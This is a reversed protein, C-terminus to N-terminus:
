RILTNWHKAMNEWTQKKAFEICNQRKENLINEDITQINKIITLVEDKFINKLKNKENINQETSLLNHYKYLMFGRKDTVTESIAWLNSCIPIVGGAMMELATICYTETFTTPYLWYESKMIEDSLKNQDVRGHYFVNKYENNLLKTGINVINPFNKVYNNTFDSFVHLEADPLISLIDPFIELLYELSRTPCSSYIFRNKQKKTIDLNNFRSYDIANGIVKVLPKFQPTLKDKIYKAHIECLTIIGNFSKDNPFGGGIWDVDQLWLYVSKINYGYRIAEAYRLVILTDIHHTTIYGQYDTLRLYEVNNITLREDTDSFIVVKYNFNNALNEAIKVASTEAGGLGKGETINKGNWKIYSLGGYIVILPKETIKHYKSDLTKGFKFRLENLQTVSNILEKEHPKPKINNYFKYVSSVDESSLANNCAEYGLIPDNNINCLLALLFWRKFNYISMDKPLLTDPPDIKCVKKIIEFAKEYNKKSYEEFAIIALPEIDIIKLTPYQKQLDTLFNHAKMLIKEINEWPEKLHFMCKAYRLISHYTEEDPLNDQFREECYKKCEEFRSMFYLTQNLYYLNRTNKPNEKYGEMLINYDKILRPMTTHEGLDNFDNNRNQYICFGPVTKSQKILKTKDKPYLVEHIRNEFHHLKNNRVVRHTVFKYKKGVDDWEQTTNYIDNNPEEKLFKLLDKGNIAEDNADLLLIYTDDSENEEIKSLVYNRNTSFDVFPKVMLDLDKTTNNYILEMTRDTSGTDCIYAKDIIDMCSKLTNVITKEENKVIM